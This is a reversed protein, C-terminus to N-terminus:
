NITIKNDPRHNFLREILARLNCRKPSLFDVRKNTGTNYDCNLMKNRIYEDIGKYGDVAGILAGVIAATTDTDGGLRIM